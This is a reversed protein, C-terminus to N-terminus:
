IKVFSSKICADQFWSTCKAKVTEQQFKLNYEKGPTYKGDIVVSGGGNLDNFRQENVHITKM